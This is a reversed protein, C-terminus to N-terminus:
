QHPPPLLHCIFNNYNRFELIKCDYNFKKKLLDIAILEDSGVSGHIEFIIHPSFKSLVFKAGEIVDGGGGEVDIKIIDVRSLKQSSFVEDISTVPVKLISIVRDDALFNSVSSESPAQALKLELFGKRAGAAVNMLVVKDSIGSMEINHLLIKFSRPDPELAIATAGLKAALISYFGIFAGVDIFIVGPKIIDKLANVVRPEHGTLYMYGRSAPVTLWTRLQKQWIIYGTKEAYGKKAIKNIFRKLFYSKDRAFLLSYFYYKTGEPLSKHALKHVKNFVTHLSM